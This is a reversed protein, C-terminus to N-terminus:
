ALLKARGVAAEFDAPELDRIIQRVRIGSQLGDRDDLAARIAADFDVVERSSEAVSSERAGPAVGTPTKPADFGPAQAPISLKAPVAPAVAEGRWVYGAGAGVVLGVLGALVLSRSTFVDM